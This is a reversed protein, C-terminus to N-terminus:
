EFNWSLVLSTKLESGRGGMSQVVVVLRARGGHGATCAACQTGEPTQEVCMRESVIVFHMDYALCLAIRIMLILKNRKIWVFRITEM